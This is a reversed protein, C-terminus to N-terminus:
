FGFSDIFTEGQGSHNQMDELIFGQVNSNDQDTDDYLVADHLSSDKVESKSWLRQFFQVEKLMM